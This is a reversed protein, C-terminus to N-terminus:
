VDYAGNNSRFPILQCSLDNLNPVLYRCHKLPYLDQTSIHGMRPETQWATHNDISSYPTEGCCFTAIRLDCTGAKCMSFGLAPVISAHSIAIEDRSPIRRLHRLPQQVKGKAIKVRHSIIHFLWASRLSSVISYPPSDLHCEICFHLCFQELCVPLVIPIGPRWFCLHCEDIRPNSLQGVMKARVSFVMM